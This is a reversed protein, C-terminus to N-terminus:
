FKSSSVKSFNIFFQTFLLSAMNSSWTQMLIHGNGVWMYVYIYIHKHTHTYALGWANSCRYIYRIYYLAYIIQHGWYLPNYNIYTYLRCQVESTMANGDLINGLYITVPFALCISEVKNSKIKKDNLKKKEIDADLWPIKNRFLTKM